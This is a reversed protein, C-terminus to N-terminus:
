FIPDLTNSFKYLIAHKNPHKKVHRVHNQSLKQFSYTPLSPM